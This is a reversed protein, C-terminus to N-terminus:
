ATKRRGRALGVGALGLGLLALTAPEPVSTNTITLVAKEGDEEAAPSGCSAYSVDAGWCGDYTGAVFQPKAETGAYLQAAYFDDLGCGGATSYFTDPGPADPSGAAPALTFSYTLGYTTPTPDTAEVWSYTPGGSIVLSFDSVPSATTTASTLGALLGASILGLMKSKM